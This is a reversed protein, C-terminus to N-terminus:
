HNISWETSYVNISNLQCRIAQSEYPESKWLYELIAAARSADALSRADTNTSQAGWTLKPGVIVQHKANVHVRFKNVRIEVNQGEKGSRTVAASSPMDGVYDTPLAGYFHRHALLQLRQLYGYSNAGAQGGIKAFYAKSFEEPDLTCWHKDSSAPDVM